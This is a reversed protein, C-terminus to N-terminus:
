TREVPRPPPTVARSVPSRRGPSRASPPATGFTLACLLAILGGLQHVISAAQQEWQEYASPFASQQVGQAAMWLPQTAWGPNSQQYQQLASLFANAAYTPDTIQDPTCWGASPRQQFLGLSDQDGYNLNELQSEQMATAVAIVASRTGMHMALARGTITKANQMQDATVTMSQQPTTIPAPLLQDQAPVPAAPRAPKAAARARPAPANRSGPGQSGKGARQATQSSAKQAPAAQQAPVAANAATGSGVAAADAQPTQAAAAPTALLRDDPNQLLRATQFAPGSLVGVGSGSASGSLSAPGTHLQSIGLAAALGLGITLAGAVYSSAPPGVATAHRGPYGTAGRVAAAVRAGRRALAVAFEATVRGLLLLALGALTFGARHKATGGFRRVFLSVLGTLGFTALKRSATLM